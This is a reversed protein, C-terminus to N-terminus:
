QTYRILKLTSSRDPKAHAFYRGRSATVQNLVAATKILRRALQKEVSSEPDRLAQFHELNTLMSVLSVESTALYLSGPLTQARMGRRGVGDAREVDCAELPHDSVVAERGPSLSVHQGAASIRLDDPGTLAAVRLGEDTQALSVLAGKRAQIDVLRCHVTAPTLFHILMEGGHMTITVGHASSSNGPVGAGHRGGPRKATDRALLIQAGKRGAVFVHALQYTDPDGAADGRDVELPAVEYRYAIPKFDSVSFTAGPLQVTESSGNSDFVMTGHNLNLTSSSLNVSGNTINAVVAGSSGPSAQTNNITPNGLASPSPSVTGSRSGSAATLDSQLKSASTGAGVAIGGPTSSSTGTASFSNGTAGNVQTVSGAAASILLSGAFSQLSNSSGFGINGGGATLTLNGATTSLHNSSSVSIGNAGTLSMTTGAALRVSGKSDFDVAGSSALAISGAVAFNAGALLELTMGGNILSSVKTSISLNSVNGSLTGGIAALPVGSVVSGENGIQATFNVTMPVAKTSPLSAAFIPAFATPLQEGSFILVANSLETKNVTTLTSPTAGPILLVNAAGSNSFNSIASNADNTATGTAGSSLLALNSVLITGNNTWTGNGFLGVQINSQIGSDNSNSSSIVGAKGVTVAQSGANILATTSQSSAGSFDIQGNLVYGSPLNIVPAAGSITVKLNPASTATTTTDATNLAFKTFVQPLDSAPITITSPGGGTQAIVQGSGNLSITQASANGGAETVQYLALAEGPSVPQQGGTRQFSQTGTSTEETIPVGQAGGTVTIAINGADATTRTSSSANLVNAGSVISGATGNAPKAVGLSFFGGPLVAVPDSTATGVLNFDTPVPQVEFTHFAVKNLSGTGGAGNGPTAVVSAEVTKGLAQVATLGDVLVAGATMTVAGNAGGVGGGNTTRANGGSTNIFGSVSIVGTVFSNATLESTELDVAGGAGGAGTGSTGGGIATINSGITIYQPAKVTIAGASGADSSSSALSISTASTNIGGTVSVTSFTNLDKGTNDQGATLSVTGGTSGSTNIQGAVQLGAASAMTVGGGPGQISSATIAGNVIAASGPGSIFSGAQFGLGSPSVFGDQVATNHITSAVAGSVNVSGAGQAGSTTIAGNVVVGNAGRLDVNGGIGSTSATTIAGTVIVGENKNGANALITVSGGQNPVTASGLSATNISVGSLNVNGGDSSPGSTEDLGTYFSDPPM